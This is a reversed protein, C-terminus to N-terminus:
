DPAAHQAGHAASDAGGASPLPAWRCSASCKGASCRMNCSLMRPHPPRTLRPRSRCGALTASAGTAPPGAQAPVASVRTRQKHVLACSDASGPWGPRPQRSLAGSLQGGMAALRSCCLRSGVRPRKGARALRTAHIGSAHPHSSAPAIRARLRTRHAQPLGGQRLGEREHLRRRRVRWGARRQRAGEVGQEGLRPRARRVRRRAVGCARGVRCGPRPAADLAAASALAPVGVWRRAWLGLRGGPCPRRLARGRRRGRGRGSRLRSRRELRHTGREVARGPTGPGLQSVATSPHRGGATRAPGPPWRV